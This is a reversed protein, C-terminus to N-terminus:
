LTKTFTSAATLTKHTIQQCSPRALLRHHQIAVWAPWGLSPSINLRPKQHKNGDVRDAVWVQNNTDRRFYLLNMYGYYTSSMHSWYKPSIPWRCIGVRNNTDNKFYQLCKAYTSSLQSWYKRFMRSGWFICAKLLIEWWPKFLDIDIHWYWYLM